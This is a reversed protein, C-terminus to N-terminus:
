YTFHLNQRMQAVLANALNYQSRFGFMFDALNYLNSTSTVGPPRSILSAYFDRGYLPNVDMVEVAVHQFEYGAKISQRGRALVYNVKPNYLTPYQWQPNTSQRGLETYGTINQTPFGGTIRADTSLGALGYADLASPTGLVPPNKGAQTNSWGFRLEFLSNASGVYTAGLVLQRNRAYINGNGGGGSPLPIPPQDTTNLKRWGYRGFTSVRDNWRYDIKGDTNDTHNTFQQSIVYNNSLADVTPDPLDALVKAAFPTMPIQTGALYIVGTRPDRVDV